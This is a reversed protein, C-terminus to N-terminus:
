WEFSHHKHENLSHLSTLTIASLFNSIKIPLSVMSSLWVGMSISVGIPTIPEEWTKDTLTSTFQLLIEWVSTYRSKYKYRAMKTTHWKREWIFCIMPLSSLILVSARTFATTLTTLFRLLISQSIMIKSVDMGRYSCAREESAQIDGFTSQIKFLYDSEMWTLNWSRSMSVGPLIPRM